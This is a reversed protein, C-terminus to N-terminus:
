SKEGGPKGQSRSQRCLIIFQASQSLWMLKQEPTLSSFESHGDFDEPSTKALLADFEELNERKKSNKKRM